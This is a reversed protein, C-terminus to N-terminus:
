SIARPNLLKFRVWSGVDLTPKQFKLKIKTSSSPRKPVHICQNLRDNIFCYMSTYFRHVTIPIFATVEGSILNMSNGSVKWTANSNLLKSSWGIEGFFFFFVKLIGMYKEPIGDSREKRNRWIM